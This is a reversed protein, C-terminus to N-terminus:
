CKTYALKPKDPLVRKGHLRRDSTVFSRPVRDPGPQQASRLPLPVSLSEQYRSFASRTFHPVTSCRALCVSPVPYGM